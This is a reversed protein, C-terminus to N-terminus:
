KVLAQRAIRDTNERPLMDVLLEVATRLEPVPWGGFGLVLGRRVPDGFYYSSLPSPGLGADWARRVVAQDDLADRFLASLHLGTAPLSIEVVDGLRTALAASLAARREAYIQRVGRVHSAYAGGELFETLAIQMAPAPFGDQAIRAARVADVADTPCVMYALRIAPYLAKSFTGVYVVPANPLLGQLAAIPRGTHRFEGDYDDEIIWAGSGTAWELLEFRRELSMTGSLPYQNSPTVYALRADPFRGRGETVDLGDPDVPVPALRLGAARLAARAAPFGPEEIWAVDGPDALVRAALDIAQRASATIVIQDPECVVGRAAGIHAAIARRLPAWGLPDSGALAVTRHHRWAKSILRRWRDVPFSAVDPIGTAFVRGSDQAPGRTDRVLDAARRSLRRSAELRDPREALPARAGALLEASVFTGAGVRRDVFGEAGLLDFATEVTIRSVGLDAALQRASPLRAGPALRGSVIRARLDDYIQRHLPRNPAQHLALADLLVRPARSASAEVSSM